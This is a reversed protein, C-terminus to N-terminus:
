EKKDNESKVTIFYKKREGSLSLSNNNYLKIAIQEIAM